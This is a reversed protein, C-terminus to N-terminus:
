ATSSGAVVWFGFISTGVSRPYESSRHNPSFGDSPGRQCTLDHIMLPHEAAARRLEMISVCLASPDIPVRLARRSSILMLVVLHLLYHVVRSSPISCAQM